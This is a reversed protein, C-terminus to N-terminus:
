ETKIFHGFTFVIDSIVIGCDVAKVMVGFHDGMECTM